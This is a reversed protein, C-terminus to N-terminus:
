RRRGTFQSVEGKGFGYSFGLTLFRGRFGSSFQFTDENDITTERIRSAFIDRASINIVGKNKLVKLRLGADLTFFGSTIGQITRVRSEHRGTMEFDLGKRIKYKATLKGSWKDASFDFVRGNLEGDRQFINFNADGNLTLKKSVSYKFNAELGSANSTGVNEPRTIILSDQFITIRDIKDTTRRYYANVNLSLDDFIFISGAEYSDTFEPLLNPNGARINFNNRINFFPNLDWLRPRYIRRSYGAQFSIAETLKYSTHVSPFLNAFSIDNTEETNVLFTKLDTQEIRFGLKV